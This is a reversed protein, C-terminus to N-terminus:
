FLDSLFVENQVLSSYETPYLGNATIMVLHIAWRIKNERRFANIKNIIEDRYKKTIVFESECFKIECM